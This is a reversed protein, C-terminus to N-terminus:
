KIGIITQSKNIAELISFRALSRQQVKSLEKSSKLWIEVQQVRTKITNPNKCNILFFIQIHTSQEWLYFGFPTKIVTLDPHGVLNKVQIETANGYVSILHIVGKKLKSTKITDQEYLFPRKIYNRADTVSMNDPIINQTIIIDKFPTFDKFDKEAEIKLENVRQNYNLKSWDLTKGFISNSLDAERKAKFAKESSSQINAKILKLINNELDTAIKADSYEKFRYFSEVDDQFSKNRAQQEISYKVETFHGSINIGFTMGPHDKVAVLYEEHCIGNVNKKKDPAWGADGSYLIIIVDAESVKKLCADFADQTFDAEFGDENLIVDFIEEGLFKEKELESKVFTRLKGLTYGKETLGEFVPNVKSSIFIKIKNM